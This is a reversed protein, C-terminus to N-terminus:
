KIVVKKGNIIYIGKKLQNNMKQGSLSYVNEQQGNMKAGTIATTENEVLFGDIYLSVRSAAAGKLKLYARYANIANGGIANKFKGGSLIYDGTAATTNAFTGVFDFVNGEANNVTFNVAKDTFVPASAPATKLYLLFPVGAAVTTAKTFNIHVNDGNQEDGDYTAVEADAGFANTIDDATLAFPLVVANWGAKLTRDVTIDAKGKYSNVEEESNNLTLEPYFKIDLTKSSGELCYAFQQAEYNEAEVTVTFDLGAQIVNISYAGEADTTGTYEVGNDAKLTVTAGAIAADASTKVTGSLTASEAALTVYLLPAAKKTGNYSMRIDSDYEYEASVWNGSGMGTAETYVRIDSSGDWIIPTTLNIVSEFNAPFNIKDAYVQIEEMDAKVPNGYTIDGTSLGVWSTVEAKFSKASNSVSRFAISTIKDGAKIGSDAIKEATYLIDTYRTQSGDNNYWDVFGYDRGKGSKTGIAIAKAVAVEETFTVDVPATVVRYDGAKVELYVEYTGVKPYLFNVSLQTGADSLNHNMPIAVAPGTGAVKDNVYATVTYSDAAEDALGLNLLNITATSAVNQMAESPINSSAITWDHAVAVPTLGYIEDVYPNSTFEFSYYYDGELATVEFTKYDATMPNTDDTGSVSFLQVRTTGEEANLVEERTTAAYVVVKGETWSSNYLKADFQLKDGSAATLKPTVFTGTGKLYYNYPASYNGSNAEIGQYVSGGPWIVGSTTPNDFNAYFKTPDLKTGSLALTFTKDAGTGDVYTIVMNGSYNGADTASFTIEVAQASAGLNSENFAAVTFQETPTATFGDPAVISKVTLPASGWNYVYFTKKDVTNTKGFAVPTTHDSPETWKSSPISNVFHFIPENTVTLDFGESEYKTGDTFEFVVKSGPYATTSEVVPTWSFSFTNSSNASATLAVPTGTALVTEGCVYKVTYNEATEDTLPIVELSPKQQSAGSKISADPWNVSKIYLDHAVDVKTLGIINDIKFEGYLAFAVYYDGEADFTISKNVWDSSGIAVAGETEGYTYTAIPDGWTKRDTSVYVKAYYGNGNYGKVDFTLQQGATAHLKPTIFKNNETYTRGKLYSDYNGSNSTYDSNIGGEAISGAPYAIASGEGNFDACWTGVPQVNGSFALTYTKETNTADLYVIVLNGSYNGFTTTPLTIDLAQSAGKAIVLGEGTIEPINTSTFGTPLTISKITLPATGTNAIEFKKTTSETIMGYAQTGSLSSTADSEAKRFVLKPEYAVSTAYRYSSSTTESVNEKIFWYKYGSVYPISFEVDFTKTEGAAIDEPVAITAKEYYEKTGSQNSAQALTLTYNETTGAILDVDGNNELTVKLAVTMNGDAQQEFVPNTGQTGSLGDKNMVSTVALSKQAIINASEATFDDLYVYQARIAIRQEQTLTLSIQKWDAEGAIDTYGEDATFRQILNGRTTGAKDIEYIEVFSPYSSSASNHAKVKLTIEGSVLPTVLLDYCVSGGWSDGAYQRTASLSGTGNFGGDATYSYSMYYPGYGDYNDTGVVHGWNSGLIFDHTSTSIATNFDVTYADAFAMNCLMTLLTLLSFRIKKNM